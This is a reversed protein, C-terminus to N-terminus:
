SGNKNDILNSTNDVKVMRIVRKSIVNRIFHLKNDIHKTKEHHTPNKSLYIASSNDCYVDVFEQLMRLEVLLCKLWLAEKVVETAATYVVETISM